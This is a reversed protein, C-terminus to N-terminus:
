HSGHAHGYGRMRKYTARQEATLVPTVELHALLHTARLKSRLGEAVALRANLKEPDAASKRFLADIGAEAAILAHGLERARAQMREFARQAADRQKGSLGLDDALELLHLPGPYGNLEAPKALGWGKGLSLDDIDSASLSAVQRSQQGAYPAHADHGSTFQQFGLTGAIGLALGAAILALNRM